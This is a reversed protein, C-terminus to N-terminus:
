LRLCLLCIASTIFLGAKGLYVPLHWFLKAYVDIFV